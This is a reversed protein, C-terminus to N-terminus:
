DVSTFFLDNKFSTRSIIVFPDIIIKKIIEILFFFFLFEILVSDTQDNGIYIGHICIDM